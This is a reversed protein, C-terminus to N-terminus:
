VTQKMRYHEHLRLSIRNLLCLNTLKIHIYQQPLYNKRRLIGHFIPENDIINHLYHLVSALCEQHVSAYSYYTKGNVHRPTVKSYIVPPMLLRDFIPQRELATHESFPRLLNNILNRSLLCALLWIPISTDTIVKRPM